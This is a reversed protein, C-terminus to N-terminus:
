EVRYIIVANVLDINRDIVVEEERKMKDWGGVVGVVGLGDSSSAVLLNM